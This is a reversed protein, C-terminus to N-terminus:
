IWMRTRERYEDYAKGFQSAMAHEEHVIFVFQLIIWLLMAGIFSTLSGLFIAAGLLIATMGLYMPHRSLKFPGWSVLSTPMGRPKVTTRVQKFIADARINLWGGAAILVLGFLRYPWDILQGVPWLFHFAVSLTLCSLFYFPPNFRLM